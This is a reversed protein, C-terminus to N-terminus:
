KELGKNGQISKSLTRALVTFRSTTSPQFQPYARTSAMQKTGSSKKREVFSNLTGLYTM